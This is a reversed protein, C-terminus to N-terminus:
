LLKREKTPSCFQIQEGPSFWPDSSTFRELTAVARKCRLRRRPGIARHSEIVTGDTAVFAVDIECRMGFTHVDNCPALLLVGSDPCPERGLLGRLRRWTTCAIEVNM